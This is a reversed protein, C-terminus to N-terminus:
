RAAPESLLESVRPALWRALAEHGRRDFHSFGYYRDDEVVRRADLVLAGPLERRALALLRDGAADDLGLANVRNPAVVFVLGTSPAVAVLERLYRLGRVAVEEHIETEMAHRRRVEPSAPRDLHRWPRWHMRQRGFFRARAWGLGTRTRAWGSPGQALLEQLDGPLRRRVSPLHGLLWADSLWYSAPRDFSTRDYNGASWVYLVARPEHELARAVLLLSELTRGGDLSWNLVANETGDASGDALLEELQAAYADEPKSSERLWGQSHSVVIVPPTAPRDAPARTYDVWGRRFHPNRAVEYSSPTRLAEHLLRAGGEAVALLLLATACATTLPRM